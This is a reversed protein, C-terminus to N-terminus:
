LLGPASQLPCNVLMETLEHDVIQGDRPTITYDPATDFMDASDAYDARAEDMYTDISGLGAPVTVTVMRWLPTYDGDELGVGFVNNSDKLDGDGTLDEMRAREVLPADEGERTLVYVNRIFLEGSPLVPRNDRTASFDFCRAERGRYYVTTEPLATQDPGVELEVDLAAIACHRLFSSSRPADIGLRDVEAEIEELSALRGDWGEPLEVWHVQGFPSYGADGPIADVIPPHDIPACDEDGDPRCLYYIPMAQEGGADLTWYSVPEGHVFGTFLPVVGDVFGDAEAIAQATAPEDYVSALPEPEGCAVGLGLTM